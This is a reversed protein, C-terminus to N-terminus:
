AEEEVIKKIAEELKSVQVATNYCPGYPRDNIVGYVPLPSCDIIGSSLDRECAVALVAAPRYKEVAKRALTGGSVVEMNINYKQGLNQLVGITCKGCQHCNSIEGTVKYLCEDNQLCHPLLVLLKKATIKRKGAEFLKNNVEVFSVQIRDQAIKFLKGVYIIVPYLLNVTWLVPKRFFINNKGRIISWVLGFSGLSVMIALGVFFAILIVFLIKYIYEQSFALKWIYFIIIMFFILSIALLGIFTRKRGKM